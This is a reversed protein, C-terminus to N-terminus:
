KKNKNLIKMYELFLLMNKPLTEGDKFNKVGIEVIWNCTDDRLLQRTLVDRDLSYSEDTSKTQKTKM